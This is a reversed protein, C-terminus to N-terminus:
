QQTLIADNNHKMNNFDEIDSDSQSARRHKSNPSNRMVYEEGNIEELLRYAIRSTFTFVTM